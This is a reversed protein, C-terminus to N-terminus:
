PRWAYIKVKKPTTAIEFNLKEITTSIIREASFIDNKTTISSSPACQNNPECIVVEYNLDLNTMKTNLFNYTKTQAESDEDIIATRLINNKVIEDLFVPLKEQINDEIISQKTQYLLITVGLILIISLTAEIIRLWAKKNKIKNTM